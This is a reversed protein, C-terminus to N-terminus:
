PGIRKLLREAEEVVEPENPSLGVVEELLEQAAQVEGKEVYLQALRLLVRGLYRGGKGSYSRVFEEAEELSLQNITELIHSRVEELGPYRPWAFPDATTDLNIHLRRHVPPM